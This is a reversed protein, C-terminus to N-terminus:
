IDFILHDTIFNWSVGLIKEEGPGTPQMDGLTNAAYSQDKVSVMVAQNTKSYKRDANDDEEILRRLAPSNTVFKKLHFGGEALKTKSWRYLDYTRNDDSSGYVVDDVYISHLFQNVFQPGASRYQDIHHEITASLLFPSASVGFVVRKFRLMMVEPFKEFPGNM